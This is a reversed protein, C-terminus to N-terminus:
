GSRDAGHAGREEEAKEETHSSICHLGDADICIFLLYIASSIDHSAACPICCMGHVVHWAACAIWV